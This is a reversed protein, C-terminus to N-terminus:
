CETESITYRKLRETLIEAGLGASNSAEIEGNETVTVAPEIIDEKYYRGSESIDNPLRFNPLTALAINHLRGIGSELLGGCWVPINNDMCIDHITKANTYGGVRAQKINIIRCSGLEIAQAADQVSKISEDLCIPTKIEKQMRAHYILDNEDLPQEIMMLNFKDLEHFIKIDKPTYAANADATLPLEPYRDRIQAVIRVDWGPKIKIKIRKYKKNVFKGIMAILEDPTDTIGLSVGAPIARDTGGYIECLPKRNMQAYIDWLAMEVGAKAISNGRIQGFIGPLEAPSIINTNKLRPWLFDKIIHGCTHVTEPSYYPNASAASEGYGIFGEAYARIILPEQQYVRGFSTEFHHVLPLRLHLLEIKDIHM